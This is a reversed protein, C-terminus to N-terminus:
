AFAVGGDNQSKSSVVSEFSDLGLKDYDGILFVENTGVIGLGFFYGAGLILFESMDLLGARGNLVIGDTTGIAFVVKLMFMDSISVVAISASAITATDKLPYWAVGSIVDRMVGFARDFLGDLFGMMAKGSMSVGHFSLPGFSKVIM